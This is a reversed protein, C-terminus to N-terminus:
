GKKGEKLRNVKRVANKYNRAMVTYGDIVFEQVGKSKLNEKNKIAVQKRRLEMEEPTLTYDLNGEGASGSGMMALSTLLYSYARSKGNM